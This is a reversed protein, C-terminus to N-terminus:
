HWHQIVINCGRKVAVPLLPLALLAAAIGLPGIVTYLAWGGIAAATLLGAGVTAGFGAWFRRAQRDRERIDAQRAKWRAYLLQDTRRKADIEALTYAVMEAHPHPTPYYVVRAPTTTTHRTPLHRISM